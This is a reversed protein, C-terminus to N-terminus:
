GRVQEGRQSVRPVRDDAEMGCGRKAAATGAGEVAGGVARARCWVVPEDYPGGAHASHEPRELHPLLVYAAREGGRGGGGGGGDCPLRQGCLQWHAHDGGEGEGGVRM